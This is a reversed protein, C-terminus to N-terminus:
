WTVDEEEICDGSKPPSRCFNVTWPPISLTHPRTGAIHFRNEFDEDFRRSGRTDRQHAIALPAFSQAECICALIARKFVKECSDLYNPCLMRNTDASLFGVLSFIKDRFDSAESDSTMALAELVTPTDEKQYRTRLAAMNTLNDRLELHLRTTAYSELFGSLMPWPAVHAGFVFYPMRGAVVFEQIIWVRQWWHPTTTRLATNLCRNSGDFKIDCSAGTATSIETHPCSYSEAGRPLRWVSETYCGEGLWVVVNHASCYIDKMISVQQSREVSDAQNICLADIWLTRAGNVRRLRRLAKALNDTVPLSQYGVWVEENSGSAGWTYSLAEFQIGENLNEVHLTIHLPDAMSAAPLLRLVRTENQCLSQGGYVRVNVVMRGPKTYSGVIIDSNYLCLITNSPLEFPQHSSLLMPFSTAFFKGILSLNTPAGGGYSAGRVAVFQWDNYNCYPM